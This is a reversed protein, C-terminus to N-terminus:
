LFLQSTAPFYDPLDPWWKWRLGHSDFIVSVTANLTHSLSLFQNEYIQINRSDSRSDIRRTQNFTLGWLMNEFCTCDWQCNLNSKSDGKKHELPQCYFKEMQYTPLFGQFLTVLFLLM